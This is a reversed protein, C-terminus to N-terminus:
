CLYLAKRLVSPLHLIVNKPTMEPTALIVVQRNIRRSDALLYLLIRQQVLLSFLVKKGSPTLHRVVVEDEVSRFLHFDLKM